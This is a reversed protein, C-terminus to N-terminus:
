LKHKSDDRKFYQTQRKPNLMMLTADCLGVERHFEVFNGTSRQSAVDRYPELEKPMGRNLVRIHFRERAAQGEDSTRRPIIHNGL